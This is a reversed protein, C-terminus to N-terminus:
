YAYSVGEKDCLRYADLATGTNIVSVIESSLRDAKESLNEFNNVVLEVKNYVFKLLEDNKMWFNSLVRYELGDFGDSDKFKPRHAGASGYLARRETDSDQIVSPLGLELDLARCFRARDMPTKMVDSGIHLHGGAARLNTTLYSTANNTNLDWANFDPECGAIQSMPHSLLEDTFLASGSIDVRLDLPKLIDALDVMVLRHNHIFEELCNAPLTNVEATVNDEQIYGHETRRPSKKTGGLLGISSVLEGNLDRLFFEPDSGITFGM